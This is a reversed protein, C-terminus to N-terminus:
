KAEKPDEAAKNLQEVIRPDVVCAADVEKAIEKIRDVYEVTKKEVIKTKYVIKEQIVTNTKQSQVEADHLKAELEKVRERWVQEIGFGGLLYSGGAFVLIGIVQTPFRYRSILPIFTVFWSAVILAMGAFFLSYFVFLLFSDPLVAMFWSLM